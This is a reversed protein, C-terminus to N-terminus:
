KWEGPAHGVFFRSDSLLAAGDLVALGDGHIGRLCARTFPNASEPAPRVGNVRVSVVDEVADVRLGFEIREGGLVLLQGVGPATTGALALLPVLEFVLLVEGRFNVVGALHPPGGPLQTPVPSPAVAHVYRTEVAYIEAGVTFTVLECTEGVGPAEAPVRALARAREDLLARTQEPSLRASPSAAATVRELRTRIEDWDIPGVRGARKM